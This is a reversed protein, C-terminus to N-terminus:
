AEYNERPLRLELQFLLGGGWSLCAACSRRREGPLAEMVVPVVVAGPKRPDAGRIWLRGMWLGVGRWGGRWAERLGCFGGLGHAVARVIAGM